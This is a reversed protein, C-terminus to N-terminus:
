DFDSYTIDFVAITITLYGFLSYDNGPQLYEDEVGTVPLIVGEGEEGAEGGEM